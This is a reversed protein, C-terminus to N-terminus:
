VDISLGHLQEEVCVQRWEEYHRESWEWMDQTDPQIPVLRPDEPASKWDSDPMNPPVVFVSTETDGVPGTHVYPALVESLLIQRAM